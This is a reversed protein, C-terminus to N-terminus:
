RGSEGREEMKENIYTRAGIVANMAWLAGTPLMAAVPMPVNDPIIVLYKIDPVSIFEAYSFCLLSRIFM